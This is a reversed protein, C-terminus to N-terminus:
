GNTGLKAKREANLARNRAAIESKSMPKQKANKTNCVRILTFLRNLHWYQCEFPIEHSIMWFYVLESTIVQRTKPTKEKLDSFTTATAPSDIYEEILRLHEAGLYELFNEPYDDNLIMAEVYALTEEKTKDGSTLFPKMFRQEWKSLSVLSHELELTFGDRYIFQSTEEDYLEDGTVVLKLM